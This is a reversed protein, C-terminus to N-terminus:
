SSAPQYTRGLKFGDSPPPFGKGHNSNDTPPPYPQPAYDATGLLGNIVASEMAAISSPVTVIPLSPVTPDHGGPFATTFDGSVSRRWASLNPLAVGRSQLGFVRSIVTLFSRRTLLQRATLNPPDHREGPGVDTNM